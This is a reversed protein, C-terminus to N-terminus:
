NVSWEVHCDLDRKYVPCRSPRHYSEADLAMGASEGLSLTVFIFAALAGVYSLLHLLAMVAAFGLRTAHPQECIRGGSFGIGQHKADYLIDFQGEDVRGQINGRVESRPGLTSQSNRAKSRYFAHFLECPDRAM